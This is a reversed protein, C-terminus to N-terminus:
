VWSFVKFLNQILFTKSADTTYMELLSSKLTGQGYDSHGELSDYWFAEWLKKEM